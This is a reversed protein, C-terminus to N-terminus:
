RHTQGTNHWIEGHHGDIYYAQHEDLFRQMMANDARGGREGPRPYYCDGLFMVGEDPVRLVVSDPSHAGGVHELELTVGDIAMRHTRTNFTIDPLIVEFEDWDGVARDIARYIGAIEPKERITTAVFEPGWPRAAYDIMREYGSEHAIVPAGYVCAGFTHDWHYHSYIIQSVPPAAIGKLAAKVQEAHAPGNGADYLITHHRTCVIGITPQVRGRDPHPPLMWVHETLQRLDTM